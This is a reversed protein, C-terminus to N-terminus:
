NDQENFSNSINKFLGLGDDYILELNYSKRLKNKIISEGQLQWIKRAM